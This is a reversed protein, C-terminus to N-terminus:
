LLQPQPAIDAWTTDEMLDVTGDGNTDTDIRVNTSDLAILRISAGNAGTVLFEGAFPYDTGLGQFTVPTAYTIVGGLETSNITGSSELTYPQPSVSTDVTQMSSFNSNTETESNTQVTLSNGTISTVALPNGTLDITVMSDGNSLITDTATVVEFDVLQVNMVLLFGLTALDFDFSVVTMELRGNAVAGLGNDCDMSEVNIQDGPSLLQPNAVEGTITTTGGADCDTVDPGLPDKQMARTLLDPLRAELHLKQLGGGSGAVLGAGTVMGGTNMSQQASGYASRVAPKANTSTIVLGTGSGTPPQIGAPSSSGGGCASLFLILPLSYAVTRNM